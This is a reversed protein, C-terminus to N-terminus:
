NWKTNGGCKRCNAIDNKLNNTSDWINQTECIKNLEENCKQGDTQSLAILTGLQSGSVLYRGGM